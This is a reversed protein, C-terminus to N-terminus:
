FFDTMGELKVNNHTACSACDFHVDKSVRPMQSVFEALAAFQDKTMSDMFDEIEKDTVDKALIREEETVIADISRIVMTFLNSTASADSSGIKVIDEYSPWKMEISIEPTLQITSEIKPVDVVISSVDVTVENNHDCSSCKIGITSTEGVSKARMQLFMYEVDFMALKKRDIDEDVCAVITDVISNMMAQRDQSEMAMLMVKEEKVLYPRYRVKQNTSPIVLDYKPKDNLKPLAM